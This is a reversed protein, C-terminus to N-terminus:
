IYEGLFWEEFNLFDLYNRDPKINNEDMFIRLSELSIKFTKATQIEGAQIISAKVIERYVHIFPDDFAQIVLKKLEQEEYGFRKATKKTGYLLAYLGLERM